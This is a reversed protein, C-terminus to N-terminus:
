LVMDKVEGAKRGITPAVTKVIGFGLLALGLGVFVLTVVSNRAGAAFKALTGTSSGGSALDVLNSAAAGLGPVRGYRAGGYVDQVKVVDGTHPAAIQKGGGIYIAVHSANGAPGYFVLDGPVPSSIPTTYREQEAATRPLKIGILGYEYQTLGSCDFSEGPKETGYVYPTGLAQRANAILTDVLSM